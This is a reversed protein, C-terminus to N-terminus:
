CWADHPNEDLDSLLVSFVESRTCHIHEQGSHVSGARRGDVYWTFAILYQVHLPPSPSFWTSEDEWIIVLLWYICWLPSLLGRAPERKLQQVSQLRHIISTLISVNILVNGYTCLLFVAPSNIDSVLANVHYNTCLYGSCLVADQQITHKNRWMPSNTRRLACHTNLQCCHFEGSYIKNCPCCLMFMNKKWCYLAINEVQQNM